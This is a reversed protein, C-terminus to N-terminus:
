IYPVDSLGYTQVRNKLIGSSDIVIEILCDINASLLFPSIKMEGYPDAYTSM